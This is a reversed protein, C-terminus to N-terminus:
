SMVFFKVGTILLAVNQFLSSFCVELSKAVVQLKSTADSCAHLHHLVAVSHNLHLLAVSHSSSRNCTIIFSCRLYPIFSVSGAVSFCDGLLLCNSLLIDTATCDLPADSDIHFVTTLGWGSVSWCIKCGLVVELLSRRYQILQLM